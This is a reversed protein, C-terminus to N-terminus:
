IWLFYIRTKEEEGICPFRIVVVLFIKSSFFDFLTDKWIYNLGFFTKKCICNLGFYTKKYRFFNPCMFICPKFGYVKSLDMSHIFINLNYFKKIHIAVLSFVWNFHSFFFNWNKKRARNTFQKWNKNKSIVLICFNMVIIIIFLNNLFELICYITAGLHIQLLECM